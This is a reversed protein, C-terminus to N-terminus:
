EGHKQQISVGETLGVQRWQHLRTRQVPSLDYAPVYQPISVVPAARRQLNVAHLRGQHFYHIEVAQNTDMYQILAEPNGQIQHGNFSVLEDGPSLGAVDAPADPWVRAIKILGSASPTPELKLGWWTETWTGGPVPMLQLGYYQGMKELAPTLETTGEIYQAFFDDLSIGAHQEALGQYDARTYGRGAKAIQQYMDRMVLDLNSRGESAVRITWDLLMAVLYGKTYFSIRRDPMGEPTYQHTWSQLSALELSIHTKGPKNYHTRLEGNISNIWTDLEWVGSKWLMLDGYYTTVGETVYHLKSYQEQTYDYPWLDAPRLAKVNWTHFFEHSSIELFSKYMPAEMLRYGPGMAIVTSAAHEVGHRFPQPLMVFLYHYESVPCDGFLAIQAESYARFEAEIRKFDPQCEGQFWVWIEVAGVEFRHSQLQKSAVFPTDILAHFSDFAYHPGAGPLAGGVSFGEPLELQLTCAEAETGPRFIFFNIGNVYIHEKDLYSGGADPKNAYATYRIQVETDKLLSLAWNHTGEMELQLPAGQADFARLDAINRAYAQREYRGPRWLPLQLLHTGATASFSCTVTILHRTPDLFQVTYDM